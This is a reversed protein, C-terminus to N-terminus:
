PTLRRVRYFRNTGPNGEHMVDIFYDQGTVPAGAPQWDTSTLSDCSELQWTTNAPAGFRVHVHGDLYDPEVSGINVGAQFWVPLVASPPHIPGGGIGNTSVDVAQFGVQYIGPKTTSMRRGHIHGFPDAGPSGDTQTIRFLNTATEGVGVSITPATTSNTEWFGFTGGPPGFLLSIRGLFLAGFSAAGATPGGYAATQPLAALTINGQYYGAYKGANTYDFTKVYGSSAIFDMANNWNAQDNVNTGVAGANLHGHDQACLFPSSLVLGCILASKMLTPKM